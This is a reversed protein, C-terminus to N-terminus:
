SCCRLQRNPREGMANLTQEAARVFPHQAEVAFQIITKSWNPLASNLRYFVWQGHKSDTLIQYKRLLALHRSVKPQSEAIVAMLECVCLEGHAAILTICQLRTNDSLCKFLQVPTIM